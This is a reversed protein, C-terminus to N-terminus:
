YVQLREESERLRQEAQQRTTIDRLVVLTGIGMEDNFRAARVEVAVVM